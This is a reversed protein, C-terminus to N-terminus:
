EFGVHTGAELCSRPALALRACRSRRKRGLSPDSVLREGLDQVAVTRGRRESRVWGVVRKAMDAMKRRPREVVALLIDTLVGQRRRAGGEVERSVRTGSSPGLGVSDLASWQRRNKSVCLVDVKIDLLVAGRHAADDELEHARKGGKGTLNAM